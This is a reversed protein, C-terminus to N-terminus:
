VPIFSESPRRGDLVSGTPGSSRLEFHRAPAEYPGNLIPNEVTRDDMLRTTDSRLLVMHRRQPALTDLSNLDTVQADGDSGPTKEPAGAACPREKRVWESTTRGADHSGLEAFHM